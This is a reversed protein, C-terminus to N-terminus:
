PVTLTLSEEGRFTGAYDTLATVEIQLPRRPTGDFLFVCDDTLGVGIGYGIDTVGFDADVMTQPRSWAGGEPRYRVVVRVHPTPATKANHAYRHAFQGFCRGRARTLPTVWRAVARTTTPAVHVVEVNLTATRAGIQWTGSATSQPLATGNLRTTASYTASPPSATAQPAGVALLVVGVVLTRGSM